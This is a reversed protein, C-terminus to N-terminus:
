WMGTRMSPQETGYTGNFLEDRISMSRQGSMMPQQQQQAARLWGLANMLETYAENMLSGSRENHQRLKSEWGSYQLQIGGGRKSAERIVVAWARSIEEYANQKALNHSPTDWEPLEHIIETVADLYDLSISSQSEHPPLFHPTFDALANLLAQWSPRVRDYSYDSRPNPDLPFSSKLKQLYQRLVSVTSQINPRPAIQTIEESLGPNRNSLNRIINRLSDTDLTELLRDLSLPRGELNTRVRKRSQPHLAPLRANSIAPSTTMEDDESSPSAKRKRNTSPTNTSVADCTMDTM